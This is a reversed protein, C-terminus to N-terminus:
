VPAPPQPNNPEDPDVSFAMAPMDQPMAYLFPPQPDNKIDPDVAFRAGHRDSFHLTVALSERKTNADSFTVLKGSRSISPESIQTSDPAIEVSAFRVSEPTPEVLQYNIVTDPQFVTVVEPVFTTKYTAGAADRDPIATVLVNIFQTPTNFSKKAM